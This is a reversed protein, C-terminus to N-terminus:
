SQDDQRQGGMVQAFIVALRQEITADIHSSETDLQCGGRTILPDEILQWPVTMEDLSLSSRVLEADEPHLRLTIKQSAVPLSAVAERVVAVVQGPDVKIERRVIQAGVAMALSVLEQEVRQDLNKFPENLSELLSSFEAAQQRLLHLNEDYGKRSGEQYGKQFGEQYGSERGQEHGQDYAEQYAKNQIAEIEAITLIKPPEPKQAKVEVPETQQEPQPKERGSVDPLDWPTM